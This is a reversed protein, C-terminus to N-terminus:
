PRGDATEDFQLDIAWVHKPYQGRVVISLWAIKPKRLKRVIQEPTHSTRKM